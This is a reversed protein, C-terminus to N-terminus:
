SGVTREQWPTGRKAIANLQLLLKRMVAVVAVKGAKGRKRLAQYFQKIELNYRIASLAAMYLAKRVIARGGRIRRYGHQKGSDCAWPALGVLATIASNSFEGLEPLEAVLTCATLYGIGKVSQYLTAQKLLEKAEKLLEDYRTELEAIESDLWTIHRECSMEVENGARKELRNLEQTRQAILQNRRRLLSQLQQRNKDWVVLPPLEFIQGYRSLVKADLQDTKAQHGCSKAFARVKNPHASHVEIVSSRLETVLLREYGGTSELVAHTVESHILWSLLEQVGQESNEYRKIKGESVSVDLFYKGVDIGAVHKM